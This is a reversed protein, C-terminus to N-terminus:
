GPRIAKETAVCEYHHMSMNSQLALFQV